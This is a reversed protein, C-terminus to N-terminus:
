QADVVSFAGQLTLRRSAPDALACVTRATEALYADGFHLDPELHAGEAWENWANIFVIREDVTTKQLSYECAARLWKGYKPPSAGDFIQTGGNRRRAHNDWPPCVGPLLRFGSPCNKMARHMMTDYSLIQDLVGANKMKLGRRIRRGLPRRIEPTHFGSEHPPSGAAADMGFSYPNTDGFAQPMIMYPDGYGAQIFHNRWREVTAKSDPPIQVGWVETQRTQKLSAGFTGSGRGVDLLRHCKDPVFPLMEARAEAFDDAAKSGYELELSAAPINVFAHEEPM